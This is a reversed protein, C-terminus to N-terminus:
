TGVKLSWGEAHDFSIRTYPRSLARGELTHDEGIALCCGLGVKGILM